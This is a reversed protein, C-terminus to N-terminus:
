RLRQLLETKLRGAKGYDRSAEAEAIAIRLEVLTLRQDETLERRPTAIAASKLAASEAFRRDSDLAAAEALLAHTDKNAM